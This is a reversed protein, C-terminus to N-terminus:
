RGQDEDLDPLSDSPLDPLTPLLADIVRTQRAPSLRSLRALLRQLRALAQPHARWDFPPNTPDKAQTM